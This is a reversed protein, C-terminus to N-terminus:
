LSTGLRNGGVQLEAEEGQRERGSGHQEGVEFRDAGARHQAAEVIDGAQHTCVSQAYVTYASHRDHASVSM